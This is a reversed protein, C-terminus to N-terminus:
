CTDYRWWRFMLWRQAGRETHTRWEAELHRRGQSGDGERLLGRVRAHRERVQLNQESMNEHNLNSALGYPHALLPISVSSSLSLLNLSGSSTTPQVFGSSCVDRVCSYLIHNRGANALECRLWVTTETLIISAKLLRQQANSQRLADYLEYLDYKSTGPLTCTCPFLYVYTCVEFLPSRCCKSCLDSVRWGGCDAGVACRM